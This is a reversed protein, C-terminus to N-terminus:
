KRAWRPLWRTGVPWIAGAVLAPAALTLAPPFWWAAATMLVAALLAYAAALALVRPWSVPAAAAPSPQAAAALYQRRPPLYSATPPHAALMEEVSRYWPVGYYRGLAEAVDEAELGADPLERPVRRVHLAVIRAKSCRCGRTGIRSRGYGEMIGMVEARRYDSRLADRCTWYAWFGCGCRYAPVPDAHGAPLRHGGGCVAVNEGPRWAGGFVGTLLGAPEALTGNSMAEFSAVAVHWLRVGTLSGAALPLNQDSFGPLGDGARLTM